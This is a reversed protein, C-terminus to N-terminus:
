RAAARKAPMRSPLLDVPGKASGAENIFLPLLQRGSGALIAAERCFKGCQDAVRFNGGPANKRGMAFDM